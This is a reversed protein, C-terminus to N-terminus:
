EAPAGTKGRAAPKMRVEAGEELRLVKHRRIYEVVAARTNVDTLEYRAHPDRRFEGLVTFKGGGSALVYSNIAVRYRKRGLPLSGDPLRLEGVRRGREAKADLEYSLGLIGQFSSSGALGANEELLARLQAPTLSLLGIRNEYPVLRWVDEYRIPGPPLTEETLVGHFVIEAGTAEAIASALLRQGSSQGPLKFSCGIPNETRGLVEARNAQVRDLEPKLLALLEPHVDVDPGASLVSLEVKTMKKLVTDYVLDARGVEHGHYAAQLYPTEGVLKDVAMSKHTHGGLILDIEPFTAALRRVENADDDKFPRVGQHVLLILVEAGDARRVLQHTRAAAALDRHAEVLLQSSTRALERVGGPDLLM